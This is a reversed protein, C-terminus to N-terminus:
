GLSQDAVGHRGSPSFHANGLGKTLPLQQLNRATVPGFQECLPICHQVSVTRATQNSTVLFSFWKGLFNFIRRIFCKPQLLWVCSKTEGHLSSAVLAIALIRWCSNELQEPFVCTEWSAELCTHSLGSFVCRQCYLSAGHFCAAPVHRLSPAPNTKFIWLETLVLHPAPNCKFIYNSFIHNWHWWDNNCALKTAM